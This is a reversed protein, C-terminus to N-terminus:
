KFLKEIASRKIITRAGIKAAKLKGDEILRYITWRSAGILISAEKINLYEKQQILPNFENELETEQNSKNIKRLKIREKYARKACTDSCFKTVTTKATFSIGCLQCCRLIRINSSM